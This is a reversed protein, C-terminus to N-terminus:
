SYREKLFTGTERELRRWARNLSPIAPIGIVALAYGIFSSVFSPLVRDVIIENGRPTLQIGVFISKRIIVSNDTPFGFLTYTYNSSFEENLVDSLKQPSPAKQIISIIM